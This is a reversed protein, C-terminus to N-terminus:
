EPGAGASNDRVWLHVWEQQTLRVCGGSKEVRGVLMLAMNMPNPKIEM